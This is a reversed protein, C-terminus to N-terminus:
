PRPIDTTYHRNETYSIFVLKSMTDDFLKRAAQSFAAGQLRVALKGPLDRTTSKIAEGVRANYFTNVEPSRVVDVGALLKPIEKIIALRDARNMVDSKAKLANHIMVTKDSGVAEAFADRNERSDFLLTALAAQSQTAAILFDSKFNEAEKASEITDVLNDDIDKEQNAFQILDSRIEKNDDSMILKRVAKNIETRSAKGFDEVGFNKEGNEPKYVGQYMQSIINEANIKGTTRQHNKKRQEANYRNVEDDKIKKRAAQIATASNGDMYKKPIATLVDLNGEDIATRVYANFLETKREKDNLPPCRSEWTILVM